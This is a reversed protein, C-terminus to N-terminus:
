KSKSKTNSKSGEKDIDTNNEKSENSSDTEELKEYFKKVDSDTSILSELNKQVSEKM